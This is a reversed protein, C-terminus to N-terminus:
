PLAAVTKEFPYYHPSAPAADLRTGGRDIEALVIDGAPDLRDGDVVPLDRMHLPGENPAVFVRIMGKLAGDQRVLAYIEAGKPMAQPILVDLHGGQLTLQPAEGREGIWLVGNRKVRADLFRAMQSRSVSDQPRYTLPQEIEIAVDFHRLRYQVTALTDRENRRDTANKETEIARRALFLADDLEAATPAPSTAVAWAFENDLVPRNRDWSRVARLAIRHEAARRGPDLGTIAAQGIGAIWVLCLLALAAQEAWGARPAEGVATRRSLLVMGLLLGSLLGGIHAATDIQPSIFPAVVLNVVLLVLWSGRSLRYGGPVLHGFRFNLM